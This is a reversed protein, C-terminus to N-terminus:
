IMGVRLSFVGLLLNFWPYADDTWASLILSIDDFICAFGSTHSTLEVM